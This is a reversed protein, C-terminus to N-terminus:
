LHQLAHRAVIFDYIQVSTDMSNPTEWRLKIVCVKIDVLVCLEPAEIFTTSVKRIKQLPSM